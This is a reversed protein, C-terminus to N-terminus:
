KVEKSKGLWESLIAAFTASITLLAGLTTLMVYFPEGTRAEELFAGIYTAAGLSFLFIVIVSSIKLEMKKKLRM